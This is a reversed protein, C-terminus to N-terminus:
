GLAYIQPDNGFHRLYGNVGYDWDGSRDSLKFVADKKSDSDTFDFVEEGYVLGAEYKVSGLNGHALVGIDARRLQVGLTIPDTKGASLNRLSSYDDWWGFPIRVSGVKIGHKRSFAYDFYAREFKIDDKAGTIKDLHKAALASVHIQRDDLEEDEDIGIGELSDAIGIGELSDAITVFGGLQYLDSTQAQFEVIFDMKDSLTGEVNIYINSFYLRQPEPDTERIQGKLNEYNIIEIRSSWLLDNDQEDQQAAFAGGHWVSLILSLLMLVNIKV